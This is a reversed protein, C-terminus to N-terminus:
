NLEFVALFPWLPMKLLILISRLNTNPRNRGFSKANTALTYFSLGFVVCLIIKWNL